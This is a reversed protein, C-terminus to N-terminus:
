TLLHSAVAMTHSACALHLARCHFRCAGRVRRGALQAHLRLLLMTLLAYHPNSVKSCRTSGDSPVHATLCRLSAACHRLEACSTQRALKHARCVDVANQLLEFLDTCSPVDPCVPAATQCVVLMSCPPTPFCPTKILARVFTRVHSNSRWFRSSGLSQHSLFMSVITGM